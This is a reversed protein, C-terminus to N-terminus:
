SSRSARVVRSDITCARFWALCPTSMTEPVLTLLNASVIGKGETGPFLKPSLSLGSYAFGNTWRYSQVSWWIRCTLVCKALGLQFSTKVLIAEFCGFEVTPLIGKAWVVLDKEVVRFWIHEGSERERFESARLLTRSRRASAPWLASSVPAHSSGCSSCESGSGCPTSRFESLSFPWVPCWMQDSRPLTLCRYLLYFFLFFKACICSLGLQGRGSGPVTCLM